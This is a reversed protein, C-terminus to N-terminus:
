EESKNEPKNVKLQQLKKVSQVLSLKKSPFSREWNIQFTINPDNKSGEGRVILSADLLSNLIPALKNLNINLTKSINQATITGEKSITLIVFIQPLTMQIHYEEFNALKMKLVGTSNNYMLTLK